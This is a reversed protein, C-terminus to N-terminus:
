PRPQQPSQPPQQQPPQPKPQQPRGHHNQADKSFLFVHALELGETLGGVVLGSIQFDSNIFGRIGEKIFQSPFAGIVNATKESIAKDSVGLKRLGQVVLKGCDNALNRFFQSFRPGFFPGTAGGIASIVAPFIIGGPAFGIAGLMAGIAAGSLLGVLFKAKPSTTKCAIGSAIAGAIKSTGPLFFGTFMTAGGSGDRVSSKADGRLTQMVGLLGGGIVGAVIGPGGMAAGLAVAVLAGTVGGALLGIKASKTKRTAFTGALSSAAAVAVGPLGMFAYGSGVAHFMPQIYDNEHFDGGTGKRPSTYEDLWDVFKKLPHLPTVFRPHLLDPLANSNKQVPSPVQTASGTITM